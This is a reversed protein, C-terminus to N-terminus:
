ENTRFFLGADGATVVWWHEPLLWNVHRLIYCTGWELHTGWVPYAIDSRTEYIYCMAWRLAPLRDLYKPCVGQVLETRLTEVASWILDINKVDLRPQTRHEFNEELSPDTQNSLKSAEARNSRADFLAARNFRCIVYVLALLTYRSLHKSEVLLISFRTVLCNTICFVIYRWIFKTNWSIVESGENTIPFKTSCLKRSAWSARGLSM